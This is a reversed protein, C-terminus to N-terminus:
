EPSESKLGALVVVALRQADAKSPLQAAAGLAHLCYAALEEPAIDTRIGGPSAAEHIVDEFFSVLRERARAGHLRRHLVSALDTGDLADAYVIQAYTDLVAKLCEGPSSARKRVDALQELHAALQEKHWAALISDVDTFYSHLVTRGVGTIEAIQSMTVSKMGRRAVLRATSSLIMYREGRRPTEITTTNRLKAMAQTYAGVFLVNRM